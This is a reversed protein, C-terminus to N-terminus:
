TSGTWVSAMVSQRIRGGGTAPTQASVKGVAAAVLPVAAGTLFTRREMPAFIDRRSLLCDAELLFRMVNAHRPRARGQTAKLYRRALPRLWRWERGLTRAARGVAHEVSQEGAALSRALVRVLSPNPM